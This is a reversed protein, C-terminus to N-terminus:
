PGANTKHVLIEDSSITVSRGIPLTLMPYTHGFNLNTIIPFQHGGFVWHIMENVENQISQPLNQSSFRGMLVGNVRDLIGSIRLQYLNREFIELSTEESEELLLILESDNPFYPTKLITCISDLNGGVMVGSGTGNKFLIRGTSPKKKRPELDFKDWEIWEDSFWDSDEVTYAQGSLAQKMSSRTFSDLGMPEGFQPLLAPGLYTEIGSIRYIANLIISFDSYGMVKKPNERLAKYDIGELLAISSYGGIASLIIDVQRSLAFQNFDLTRQRVSGASLGFKTRLCNGEVWDWGLETLNNLGRELRKPCEFATPASFSSVGVTKKECM